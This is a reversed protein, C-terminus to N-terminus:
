PVILKDCAEFYVTYWPVFQERIYVICAIENIRAGGGGTKSAGLKAIYFM